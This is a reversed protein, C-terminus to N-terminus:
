KPPFNVIIPLNEYFKKCYICWFLFKQSNKQEVFDFKRRDNSKWKCKECTLFGHDTKSKNQGM